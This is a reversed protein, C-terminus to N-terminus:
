CFLEMSASHERLGLPKLISIAPDPNDEVSNHSCIFKLTKTAHKQPESPGDGPAGVMLRTGHRGATKSGWPAWPSLGKLALLRSKGLRQNDKSGILPQTPHSKTGLEASVQLCMSFPDLHILWQVNSM